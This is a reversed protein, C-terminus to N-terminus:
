RASRSHGQPKRSQKEAHENPLDTDAWGVVTSPPWLHRYHGPCGDVAVGHKDGTKAIEFIAARIIECHSVFFALKENRMKSRQIEEHGVPLLSWHSVGEQTEVEVVSKREANGDFCPRLDAFAEVWDGREELLELQDVDHAILAVNYTNAGIVPLFVHIKVVDQCRGFIRTSNKEHVDIPDVFESIVWLKVMQQAVAA